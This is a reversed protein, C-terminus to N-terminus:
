MYESPSQTCETNCKYAYNAKVISGILNKWDIQHMNKLQKGYDNAFKQM